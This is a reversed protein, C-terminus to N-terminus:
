PSSRTSAYPRPHTPAPWSGPHAIEVNDLAGLADPVLVAVSYYASVLYNAIAREDIGMFRVNLGPEHEHPIGTQWLGVVGQDHEGTRMALITSTGEDTVPIKDCPLMPVDRWAAVAQGDIEVPTPYIRRRTCERGFAAIAQPHALFLRTSRRRCLLEDLDYPTPPGTRTQIRQAREVNHLLGFEANNVLEHEQRERLAEVTLRLQQGVQDMPQNFLDGVRTHVRLVAQAVSLEYERPTPEYDVFTAAVTPEGRHGSAVAIDAEGKKNQPQGATEGYSCFHAQLRRSRSILVRFQRLPLSLLTCRTAAVATYGWTGEPAGLAEEGFFDGDAEVALQSPEGYPGTGVRNVKGHVVVVLRDLAQGEEAITSGPGVVQRIFSNALVELVEDDDFGALQPIEGLSPPVIRVGATSGASHDFSVQGGGVAYSLRRNVRYTGGSVQVWPLRRMLWRSTIAQMQPVTKTTSALNRAAETALSQQVHGNSGVPATTM